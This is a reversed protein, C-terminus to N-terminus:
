PTSRPRRGGLRWGLAVLGAGLLMLTGPESVLAARRERYWDLLGEYYHDLTPGDLTDMLGGTDVRGTRPDLPAGEYEDFLAIM